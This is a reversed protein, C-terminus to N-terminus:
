QGRVDTIALRDWSLDRPRLSDALWIVAPFNRQPGLPPQPDPRRAAAGRGRIVLHSYAVTGRSTCAVLCIRSLQPSSPQSSTATTGPGLGSCSTAYMFRDL